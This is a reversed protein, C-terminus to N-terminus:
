GYLVESNVIRPLVNMPDKGYREYDDAHEEYYYRAGHGWSHSIGVSKKMLPNHNHNNHNNNNSNNNNNNLQM